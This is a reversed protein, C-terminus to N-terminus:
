PPNHNQLYTTTSSKLQMRRYPFHRSLDVSSTMHPPIFKFERLKFCGGTTGVARAAAAALMLVKFISAAQDCDQDRLQRRSNGRITAKM